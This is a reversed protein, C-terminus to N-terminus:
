RLDRNSIFQALGIFSIIQALAGLPLAWASPIGLNELVSPFMVAMGFIDAVAQGSSIAVGILGGADSGPAQGSIGDEVSHDSATDNLEDVPIGSEPSAGANAGLAATIGASQWAVGVVLVSAVFLLPAKSRMFFQIGAALLSSASM